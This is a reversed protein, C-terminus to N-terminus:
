IGFISGLVQGFQDIKDRAESSTDDYSCKVV